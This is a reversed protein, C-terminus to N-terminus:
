DNLRDLYDKDKLYKKLTNIVTEIGAKGSEADTDYYLAQILIGRAVSEANNVININQLKKQVSVAAKDALAGKFKDENVFQEYLKVQKM